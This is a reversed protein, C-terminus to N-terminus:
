SNCIKSLWIQRTKSIKWVGQQPHEQDFFVLKEQPVYTKAYWREYKPTLIQNQFFLTKEFNQFFKKM